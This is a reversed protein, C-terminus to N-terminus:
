LIIKRLVHTVDTSTEENLDSLLSLLQARCPNPYRFIFFSTRVKAITAPEAAARTPRQENAEAVVVSVGAAISTWV